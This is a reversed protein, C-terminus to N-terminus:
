CLPQAPCARRAVRVTDMDIPWEREPSGIPPQFRTDVVHYVTLNRPNAPRRPPASSPTSRLAIGAPEATCSRRHQLLLVSLCVALLRQTKANAM